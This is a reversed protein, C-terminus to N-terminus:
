HHYFSTDGSTARRMQKDERMQRWLINKSVSPVEAVIKASRKTTQDLIENPIKIDFKIKNRKNGTPCKRTHEMYVNITLSKMHM